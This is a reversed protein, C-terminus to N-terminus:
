KTVKPLHQDGEESFMNHFLLEWRRPHPATYDTHPGINRLFINGGDEPDFILRAFAALKKTPQHEVRFVSTM